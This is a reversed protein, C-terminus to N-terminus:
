APRINWYVAYREDFLRYFPVLTVNQEQGFTEFELPRGTPRIWAAPDNDSARFAPAAVPPLKFEPVTRPKTPEARLTDASLGETGLRGALVLPGYMIAQISPNDPMPATHLQMPFHIDIRDGDRWTRHLVYYGGPAAFGELPRGNLQASGGSTWRPVRIRIACNVPRTAHITLRTSDEEPFRSEQTLRFGKEKWDLESAVFLNVFVGSDDHFYISDNLSSFSESMSGTCCWYDHFPTGFQKWYGSALPVYYLKNGDAPHQSTLIGNLLAREYFEATAPDATWSMIHRTLKLMNYTTCDEQTETSLETSLIGPEGNWNEGNSTGGTCYSRRETVERWFYAAIDRYRTEGTLEFARAAGIVKPITTNVHLGKLEDRGRALPLYIREHDFRHALAFLDPDVAPTRVFDAPFAIQSARGAESLKVVAALNYLVENMGGFERELIRSMADDGLPQVWRAVWGAMRRVVILAQANGTLVHMDLMGAMIKHLTYFPAWAAKGARLRDFVEEPFASVYGTGMRAQCRDLETVLLDGRSKIEGDGMSASMKACASLYHGTYHGRLENDPAEWGGLPEATSPLGATIRFMHLLRDPDQALLFRRNIQTADLFPGPLLRVCDLPFPLAAPGDSHLGAEAGGPFRAMRDIIPTSALLATSTLFHRREM